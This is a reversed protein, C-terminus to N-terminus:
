NCRFLLIKEKQLLLKCNENELKNQTILKKLLEQNKIYQQAGTDHQLANQQSKQADFLHSDLSLIVYHIPKDLSIHTQDFVYTIEYNSDFSSFATPAPYVLLIRIKKASINKNNAQILAKMKDQLQLQETLNAERHSAENYALWSQDKPDMLVIRHYNLILNLVLLILPILAGYRFEAFLLLGLLLMWNISHAYLTIYTGGEKVFLVLYIAAILYGIVIYIFESQRKFRLIAFIVLSAFIFLFVIVSLSLEILDNKAHLYWPLSDGQATAVQHLYYQMTKLYSFLFSPEFIALYLKPNIFFILVLIFIAALKLFPKLKLTGAKLNKDLFILGVAPAILLGTLKVAACAAMAIALKKQNEWQTINKCLLFYATVISYFFVHAATGFYTAYYGFAPYSLLLLVALVSIWENKCYFTFIQYFFYIGAFSLILSLLRPSVILLRDYGFLHLIYGPYSVIANTIWFIWGYGYDNTSGHFLNPLYSCLTHQFAMDDVGRWAEVDYNASFVFSERLLYFFVIAAVTLLLIKKADLSHIYPRLKNYM